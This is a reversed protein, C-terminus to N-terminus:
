EMQAKVFKIFPELVTKMEKSAKRDYMCSLKDLSYNKSSYWNVFFDGSFFETDYLQKCFTPAQKQMSPQTQTYFLLIAQFVRKLGDEEGDAAVLKSFCPAFKDWHNIM